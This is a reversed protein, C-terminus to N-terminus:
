FFSVGSYLHIPLKGYYKALIWAVTESFGSIVFPRVSSPCMRWSVVGAGSVFDFLTLLPQGYFSVTQIKTTLYVQTRHGMFAM